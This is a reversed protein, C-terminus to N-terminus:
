NTRRLVWGLLDIQKLLNMRIGLEILLTDRSKQAKMPIDTQKNVSVTEVLFGLSVSQKNKMKTSKLKTCLSQAVPEISEVFIWKEFIKPFTLEM